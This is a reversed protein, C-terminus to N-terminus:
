VNFRLWIPHRIFSRVFLLMIDPIRRTYFLVSRGWMPPAVGQAAAQEYRTLADVVQFTFIMGMPIFRTHYSKHAAVRSLGAAGGIIMWEVFGFARAWPVVFGLVLPLLL